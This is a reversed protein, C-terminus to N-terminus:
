LRRAYQIVADIVTRGWQWAGSAPGDKPQWAM